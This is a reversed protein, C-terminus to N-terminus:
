LIAAAEIAKRFNEPTKNTCKRFFTIFYSATDFGLKYAVEAVSLTTYGLLRQAEIVVRDRILDGSTIYRYDKCLKNLYNPTINLQAAYWSPSKKKMFHSDVLKEFLVIKEEKRNITSFHRAPKLNRELDYLLVTLFSRIIKEYGASAEKNEDHLLQLIMKWRSVQRDNIRLSDGSNKRLFSFPHFNKESHELSFFKENFCIIYGKANRNIDLSFVSNPKVCIIKQEDLRIRRNDILAEGEAREIFLITYYLQKHPMELFEYMELIREITNFWFFNNVANFVTVPYVPIIEAKTGM